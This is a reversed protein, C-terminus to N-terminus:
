YSLFARQFDEAFEVFEEELGHLNTKLWEFRITRGNEDHLIRIPGVAFNDYVAIVPEEEHVGIENLIPKLYGYGFHIHVQKYNGESNFTEIPDNPYLIHNYM